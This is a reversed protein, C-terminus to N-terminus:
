AATRHWTMELIDHPKLVSSLTALSFKLIREEPMIKFNEV